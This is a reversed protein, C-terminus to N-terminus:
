GSGAFEVFFVAGDIGIVTVARSGFIHPTVTKATRWPESASSNAYIGGVKTSTSIELLLTLTSKKFRM